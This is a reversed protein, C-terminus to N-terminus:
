SITPAAYVGGAVLSYSAGAYRNPGCSVGFEMEIDVEKIPFTTNYDPIEVIKFGLGFSPRYRVGIANVPALDTGPKYMTGFGTPIRYMAFLRVIGFASNHAGVYRGGSPPTAGLATSEFYQSGSTVGARDIMNIDDVPTVYNTLGRYTTVDAESVYARYPGAIGHENITKATDTLCDELTKSSSSNEGIYHTHTDAFTQGGWRPPAFDPGGSGALPSANCYGVDYGNTGLLNDTPDTARVLIAQDFLDRGATVIGRISAILQAETMDEFERWTGGLGQGWPQLDISHGANFGRVLPVKAGGSLQQFGQIAGGNPYLFMDDTTTTIMDGWSAIMQENYEQFGAGIMSRVQEYTNGSKLRWLAIRNGDLGAPLPANQTLVGQITGSVAM